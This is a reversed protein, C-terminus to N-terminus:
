ENNMDMSPQSIILTGDRQQLNFDKLFSMGLLVGGFEGTTITARVNRRQINGISVMDLRTMWANVPGAATMVGIRPGFKLGLERAVSEPLAIDTAGTDVLFVVARGNIQGEVEYHGNRDQQLIVMANGSADVSSVSVKDKQLSSFGAYLGGLLLLASVWLM